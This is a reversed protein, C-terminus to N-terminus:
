EKFTTNSFNEKTHLKIYKEGLLRNNTVIPLSFLNSDVKRTEVELFCSFWITRLRRGAPVTESILLLDLHMCSIYKFM